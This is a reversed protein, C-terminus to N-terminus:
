RTEELSDSIIKAEFVSIAQGELLRRTMVFQDPGRTQNQGKFIVNLTKLFSLWQEPSGVSFPALQVSYTISKSNTPESKLKFTLAKDEEMITVVKVLSIILKEHPITPNQNKKLITGVKSEKVRM